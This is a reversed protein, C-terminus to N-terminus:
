INDFLNHLINLMILLIIVIVTLHNVLSSATYNIARGKDAAANIYM